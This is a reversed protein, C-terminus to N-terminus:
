IGFFSVAIKQRTKRSHGCLWDQGFYLAAVQATLAVILWGTGALGAALGGVAGVISVLLVLTIAQHQLVEYGSGEHFLALLFWLIGANIVFTLM